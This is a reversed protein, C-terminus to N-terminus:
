RQGAHRPDQVSRALCIIALLMDPVANAKAEAFTNPAVAYASEDTLSQILFGYFQAKSIALKAVQEARSEQDDSQSSVGDPESGYAGNTLITESMSGCKEVATPLGRLQLPSFPLDEASFDAQM